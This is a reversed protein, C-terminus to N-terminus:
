VNEQRRVAVDDVLPPGAPPLELHDPDLIRRRPVLDDGALAERRNPRQLRTIRIANGVVDGGIRVKEEINPRLLRIWPSGPVAPAISRRGATSGRSQRRRRM